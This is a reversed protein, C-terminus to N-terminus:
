KLAIMFGLANTLEANIKSYHATVASYHAIVATNDAIEATNRATAETNAAIVKNTKAIERTSRATAATSRAIDDTNVAIEDLYANMQNLSCQMTSLQSIVKEMSSNLSNLNANIRTLEKYMMLQNQKIEELKTVITNLQSIILNSRCEAEYLNYAGDAGQLTTCRGTDLYEYFSSVAVHTRYKPHIINYAYLKGRAKVVQKLQAEAQSIERALFADAVNVPVALATPNEPAAEASGEDANQADFKDQLRRVKKETAIRAKEKLRAAEEVVRLEETECLLRYQEMDQRYQEQRQANQQRIREASECALQYRKLVLAYEAALRANEEQVKKKNFLGPTKYVPEAPKKPEEVPLIEMKRPQPIVQREVAARFDQAEFDEWILRIKEEHKELATQRAKVEKAAARQAAKEQKKADKEGKAIRTKFDRENQMRAIKLGVIRETLFYVASEAQLLYQLYQKLTSLSGAAVAAPNDQPMDAGTFAKGILTDLQKRIPAELSAELKQRLLVVAANNATRQTIVLYDPTMQIRKGCIPCTKVKKQAQEPVGVDADADWSVSLIHWCSKCAVAAVFPYKVGRGTGAGVYGANYYTAKM